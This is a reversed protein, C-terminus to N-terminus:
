EVSNPMVLEWPLTRQAYWDIGKIASVFMAVLNDQYACRVRGPDILGDNRRVGSDLEYRTIRRFQAHGIGVTPYAVRVM